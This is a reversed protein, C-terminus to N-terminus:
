SVNGGKLSACTVIGTSARMPKDQFVAACEETTKLLPQISEWIKKKQVQIMFVAAVNLCVVREMMLVHAILIGVRFCWNVLVESDRPDNLDVEMNNFSM